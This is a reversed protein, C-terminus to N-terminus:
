MCGYDGAEGETVYFSNFEMRKLTNGDGSPSYIVSNHTEGIMYDGHEDKIFATGVEVM